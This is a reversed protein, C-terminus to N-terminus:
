MTLGKVRVTWVASRDKRLRESGAPFCYLGYTLSSSRSASPTWVQSRRLESARRRARLPPADVRESARARARVAAALRSGPGRERPPPTAAREGRGLARPLPADAKKSAQARAAAHCSARGFARM